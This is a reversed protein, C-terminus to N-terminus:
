PEPRASSLRALREEFEPTLALGLAQRSVLVDRLMYTAKRQFVAPRAEFFPWLFDLAEQYSAMAQGSQDLERQRDGLNNLSM